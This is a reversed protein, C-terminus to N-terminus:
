FYNFIDRKLLIRFSDHFFIHAYFNFHTFYVIRAPSGTIPPFPFSLNSFKWPFWLRNRGSLLKVFKIVFKLPEIEEGGGGVFRHKLLIM